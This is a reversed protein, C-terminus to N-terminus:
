VIQKRRTTAQTQLMAEVIQLAKAGDESSFM